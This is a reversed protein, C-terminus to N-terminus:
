LSRPAQNFRTLVCSAVLGLALFWCCVAMFTKENMWESGIIALWLSGAGIFANLRWNGGLAIRLLPVRSTMTVLYPMVLWCGGIFAALAGCRGLWYLWTRGPTPAQGSFMRDATQKGSRAVEFTHGMPTPYPGLADGTQKGLVSVTQGDLVGQFRIRVDGIQPNAPDKSVYLMGKHIRLDKGVKEDVQKLEAESVPIDVFDHMQSILNASLQFAGLKVANAQAGWAPYPMSDPNPYQRPQDFEQSNILSNSWDRAYTFEERTETSGDPKTRPRETTYQNWQFMEVHRQLKVYKGSVGFLPDTLPESVSIKGTVHVFKGDNNAHVEDAPITVLSGGVESLSRSQEVAHRENWSLLTWGVFLLGAAALLRNVLTGSMSLLRSPM